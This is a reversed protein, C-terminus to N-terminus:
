ARHESEEWEYRIQDPRPDGSALDALYSDNRLQLEPRLTAMWKVGGSHAQATQKLHWIAFNGPRSDKAREDPDSLFVQFGAALYFIIVLAFLGKPFLPSHSPGVVPLRATKEGGPPDSTLDSAGPLAQRRQDESMQAAQTEHRMDDSTLM